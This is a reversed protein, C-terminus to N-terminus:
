KKKIEKYMETLSIGEDTKKKAKIKDIEDSIKNVEKTFANIDATIADILGPEREGKNILSQIDLQLNALKIKLAKLNNRSM